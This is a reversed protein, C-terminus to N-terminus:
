EQMFVFFYKHIYFLLHVKARMHPKKRLVYMRVNNTIIIGNLIAAELLVGTADHTASETTCSEMVPVACM